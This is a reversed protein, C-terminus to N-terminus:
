TTIVKIETTNATVPVPTALGVTVAARVVSLVGWLAFHVPVRCCSGRRRRLLLLLLLAPVVVVVVGVVAAGAVSGAIAVSTRPAAPLLVPPVLM